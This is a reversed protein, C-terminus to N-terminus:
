KVLNCPNTFHYQPSIEATFLIASPLVEFNFKTKSKVREHCLLQKDTIKQM